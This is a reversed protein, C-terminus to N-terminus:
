EEVSGDMVRGDDMEDVHSERIARLLKILDGAGFLLAVASFGTTAVINAGIFWYTFTKFAEM